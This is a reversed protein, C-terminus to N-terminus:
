KEYRKLQGEKIAREYLLAREHKLFDVQRNRLIIEEIETRAYDIPMEDGKKHMATVQLLYTNISDSLEIQKSKKLQQQLNDEEFPMRLLIQNTTMWQDLFLEYGTAYQYAFKEIWEINEELHPETMKKRLKDLNPSDKPTVLLLGKVVDDRLIFRNRHNDYFEQVLTDMVEHSMRQAILRQEYEHIYLSRRYDEVLQEIHKNTKDRAIDYELIGIAWQYIYKEALTASDEASLGQTIHDIESWTIIRGKCEAVVGSNRKQDFSTCGVMLAICFIVIFERKM